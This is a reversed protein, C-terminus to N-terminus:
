KRAQEELSEALLNVIYKDLGHKICFKDAEAHANSRENM